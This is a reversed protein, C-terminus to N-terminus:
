PQDPIEAEVLRALLTPSEQWGLYCAEAPIVAPVGEQKLDRRSRKRAQSTGLQLKRSTMAGKNIPNGTACRRAQAVVNSGLSNLDRRLARTCVPAASRARSEDYRLSGKTKGTPRERPTPLLIRSLRSQSQPRRGLQPRALGSLSNEGGSAVFRTAQCSSSTRKM